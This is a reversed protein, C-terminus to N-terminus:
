CASFLLENLKWLRTLFVSCPSFIWCYNCFYKNASDHILNSRTIGNSLLVSTSRQTRWGATHMVTSTRLHGSRLVSVPALPAKKGSHVCQIVVWIIWSSMLYFTLHSRVPCCYQKGDLTKLLRYIHSYSVPKKLRCGKTKHTTHGVAVVVIYVLTHTCRIM